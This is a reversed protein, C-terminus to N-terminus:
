VNASGGELPLHSSISAVETKDECVIYSSSGSDAEVPSWGGGEPGAGATTLAGEETVKLGQWRNGTRTEKQLFGMSSLKTKFQKNSEKDLGVQACWGAYAAYLDQAGVSVGTLTVCREHVFRAVADMDARYAATATRVEGPTPLKKEQQWALCGRVAWALIGPLETVLKAKLEHDQESEPITVDFPVVRIRRWIAHDTGPVHPRNNSVLTIKFTPLFEFFERHLFRATIRDEGTLSKVQAEDLRRGGQTESAAVFRAGCLRALDNSIRDGQKLLFTDAPTTSAYDGLMALVISLLTSKGNAGSGLFICFCQERTTGTLNYGIWRQVFAILENSGGMIRDLFKAFTPCQATPDYEVPALKTILDTPSHTQLSGTQLNLTGNSVNLLWPDRDLDDPRIATGPETEALKVMSALRGGFGSRAAHRWLAGKITYDTVAKAKDAFSQITLKARQHVEGLDDPAWRQRDWVLWRGWAPVFRLDQGHERVLRRANGLDTLDDGDISTSVARPKTKMTM